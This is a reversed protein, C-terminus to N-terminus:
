RLGDGRVVRGNVELALLLTLLRGPAEGSMRVLDDLRMGDGDLLALLRHEAPTLVPAPAAAFSRSAIDVDLGLAAAPGKQVVVPIAVEVDVEHVAGPHM